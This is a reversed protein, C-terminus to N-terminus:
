PLIDAAAPICLFYYSASSLQVVSPIVNPTGDLFFCLINLSMIWISSGGGEWGKKKVFKNKVCHQDHQGGKRM